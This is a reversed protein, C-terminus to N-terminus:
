AAERRKEEWCQEQIALEKTMGGLKIEAIGLGGV